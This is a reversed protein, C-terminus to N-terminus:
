FFRKGYPDDEDEEIMNTNSIRNFDFIYCVVIVPSLNHSIRAFGMNFCNFIIPKHHISSSCVLLYQSTNYFSIVNQM